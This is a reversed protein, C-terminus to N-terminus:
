GRILSGVTPPPPLPPVPSGSSSHGYDAWCNEGQYLRVRILKARLGQGKELIKEFCFQALRELTPAKDKFESVSYSLNQHDLPRIVAKLVPDIDSLNVVLGTRPDISGQFFAELIYNHGFGHESQSYVGYYSRAQDLTMSSPRFVVGATFYAKRAIIIEQM